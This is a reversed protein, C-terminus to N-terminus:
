LWFFPRHPRGPPSTPSPNYPAGDYTNFAVVPSVAPCSIVDIPRYFAPEPDSVTGVTAYGAGSIANAVISDQNGCDTIGAQYGYPYGSGSVNADASGLGNANSITNSRATDRSPTSSAATCAANYNGLYVGIDDGQLWNGAATVNADLPEGCGGFVLIGTSDADNVGTYNDGTVVDNTVSGVAGFAIQVGNQAIASTPGIGAVTSSAVSCSTGADDCTIGNKDYNNVNLSSMGVNSSKGSNTAVYVGLGDQCGFLDPALEVGTVTVDNLAGSADRYYVGVFDDACSTFQGEAGSGNITLDQLSVQSGPLADVIAYQPYSSDTDPEAVPLASPDVVVPSVSTGKPAWGGAITVNETGPVVLQQAYTGGAVRITSGSSAQTLAYAITACPATSSQCNGTDTGSPSVYLTASSAGALPTTVMLTAAVVAIGVTAGALRTWFSRVNM